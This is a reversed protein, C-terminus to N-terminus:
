MDLNLNKESLGRIQEGSGFLAPLASLDDMDLPRMGLQADMRDARVDRRDTDESDKPSRMEGKLNRTDSYGTTSAGMPPLDTM